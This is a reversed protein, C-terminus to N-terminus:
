VRRIIPANTKTTEESSKSSGLLRILWETAFLTDIEIAIAERGGRVGSGKFYGCLSGYSDSSDFPRGWLAAM